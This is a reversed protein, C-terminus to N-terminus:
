KVPVEVYTTGESYPALDGPQFVLWATQNKGNKSETLYYQTTMQSPAFEGSWTIKKHQGNYLKVDGKKLAAKLQDVTAIDTYVHLPINKGTSKDYVIGYTVTEPNALAPTMKECHLLVSLEENNELTVTYVMKRSDQTDPKYDKQAEKVFLGIDTNIMNQVNKNSEHAVPYALDLGFGDKLAGESVAAQSVYPISLVLMSTVIAQKLKTNMKM